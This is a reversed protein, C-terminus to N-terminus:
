RVYFPVSAQLDIQCSPMVSIVGAGQVIKKMRYKHYIVRVDIQARTDTPLSPIQGM